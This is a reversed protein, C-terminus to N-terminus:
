LSYRILTKTDKLHKKAMKVHSIELILAALGDFNRRLSTFFGEFIGEFTLESCGRLIFVVSFRLGELLPLMFDTDHSGVM